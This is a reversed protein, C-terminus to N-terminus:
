KAPTEAPKKAEKAQIGAYKKNLGALVEKTIDLAPNAHLIPGGANTSLIVGYRYDSNYEKLFEIISHHIQNLMVSEEENLEAVVRDRQEIFAQQKKTLSEEITQAQARTVLQNQVKNQYDAVDRELSRGKSTLDSDAKSAKAQYAGSLNIYMDYKMILSDMNIYAVQASHVTGTSDANFASVGESSNKPKCGAVILVVATAVLIIKKMIGSDLHNIQISKNQM